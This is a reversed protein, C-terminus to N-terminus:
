IHPRPTGLVDLRLALAQTIATARLHEMGEATVGRGATMYDALLAAYIPAAILVIHDALEYHM